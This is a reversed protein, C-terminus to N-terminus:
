RALNAFLERIDIKGQCAEICRGCATCAIFNYNKPKMVLKCFFRNYFRKYLKDRPNAGGAVRAFGAYQCSDWLKEKDLKDPSIENLLFCHCSPCINTCAGCTVCTAAMEDWIPDECKNEVLDVIESDSPIEFDKNFDKIAIKSERRKELRKSLADESAPVGSVKYKEFLQRGKESGIEVLVDGDILSINLDFCTDSYPNGGLLTCFCVECPAHCDSSIIYTNDRKDKYFPDVYDPDLYIKDLTKIARIDCDKVGLIINKKDDAGDKFVVKEKAPYFFFKLPTNLRAGPYVIDSLENQNCIQYDVKGWKKKPAYLNHGGALSTLFKEWDNKKVYLITNAM